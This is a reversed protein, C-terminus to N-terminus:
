DHLSEEHGLVSEVRQKRSKMSATLQLFAEDLSGRVWETGNEDTFYHGGLHKVYFPRMRPTTLGDEPRWSVANIHGNVHTIGVDSQKLLSLFRILDGFPSHLGARSSDRAILVLILTEAQAPDVRYVVKSRGVSLEWGLPPYGFMGGPQYLGPKRGQAELWRTFPDLHLQFM